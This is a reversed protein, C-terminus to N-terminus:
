VPPGREQPASDKSGGRRRFPLAVRVRRIVRLTLQWLQAFVSRNHPQVPKAAPTGASITAADVVPQGKGARAQKEAPAPNASHEGDRTSDPWLEAQSWKGFNDFCVGDDYDKVIYEPAAREPDYQVVRASGHRWLPELSSAPVDTSTQILAHVHLRCTSPCREYVVFARVAAQTRRELNRVYAGVAKAADSQTSRDTFTLTAVHSWGRRRLWKAM